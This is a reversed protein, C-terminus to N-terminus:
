RSVFLSVEHASGGRGGQDGGQQRGADGGHEQGAGGGRRHGLVVVVEVPVAAAVEGVAAVVVDVAHAARDGDHVAGGRAEVGGVRLPDVLVAGADGPGPLLVVLEALGERAGVEVLVAVRIEDDAVGGLV